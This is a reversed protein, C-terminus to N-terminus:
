KEDDHAHAPEHKIAAKITATGESQLQQQDRTTDSHSPEQRTTEAKKLWFERTGGLPNYLRLDAIRGTFPAAGFQNHLQNGLELYVTDPSVYLWTSNNTAGYTAPNGTTGAFGDIM